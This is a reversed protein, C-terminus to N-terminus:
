FSYLDYLTGPINYERSFIGGAYVYFINSPWVVLLSCTLYNNYMPELSQFTWALFTSYFCHASFTKTSDRKLSIVAQQRFIITSFLIIAHCIYYFGFLFLNIAGDVIKFLIHMKNSLKILNDKKIFFDYLRVTPPCKITRLGM